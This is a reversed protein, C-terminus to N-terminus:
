LTHSRQEATFSAPESSFRVLGTMVGGAAEAAGGRSCCCCVETGSSVVVTPALDGGGRGGIGARFGGILLVLSREVLGGISVVCGEEVVVM